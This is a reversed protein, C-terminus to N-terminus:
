YDCMSLRVRVATREGRVIVPFFRWQDLADYVRRSVEIEGSVWRTDVVKGSPDLDVDVTCSGTPRTVGWDPPVFAYVYVPPQATRRPLPKADKGELLLVERAPVVEADNRRVFIPAPFVAQLTRDGPRAPWEWSKVNAEAAAKASSPCQEARVAVAKGTNDVAARVDCRYVGPPYDSFAEGVPTNEGWSPELESWHVSAIGEFAAGVDVPPEPPPIVPEYVTPDHERPVVVFRDKPIPAYWILSVRLWPYFPNAGDRQWLGVDAYTAPETFMFAVGGDGGVSLGPAPTMLEGRFASYLGVAGLGDGFGGVAFGYIGRHEFHRRKSSIAVDARFTPVWLEQLTGRVYDQDLDVGGSLSFQEGLHVRGEVGFWGAGGANIAGGVFGVIHKRPLYSQVEFTNDYELEGDVAVGDLTAPDFKWQVIATALAYYPDDACEVKEVDRVSGDARVLIRVKCPYEGKPVTRYSQPMLPDVTPHAVPPRYGPTASATVTPATATPPPSPEAPSPPAPSAPPADDALSLAALLLIM